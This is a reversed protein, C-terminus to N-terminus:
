ALKGLEGPSTYTWHGCFQEGCIFVDGSTIRTRSPGFEDISLEDHVGGRVGDEDVSSGRAVRGGEVHREFQGNTFCEGRGEEFVEGEVDGFEENPLNHNCQM